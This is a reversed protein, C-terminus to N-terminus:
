SPSDGGAVLRATEPTYLIRKRFNLPLPILCALMTPGPLQFSAVDHTEPPESPLVALSTANEPAGVVVNAFGQLFVENLILTDGGKILLTPDRVFVIDGPMEGEHALECRVFKYMIDAFPIINGRFEINLNILRVNSVSGTLEGTEDALFKTFSDKDGM